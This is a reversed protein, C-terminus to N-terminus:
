SNVYGRRWAWLWTSTAVWTIILQSAVWRGGSTYGGILLCFFWMMAMYSTEESRDDACLRGFLRFPWGIVGFVLWLIFGLWRYVSSERHAFPRQESCSSFTQPTQGYVPPEVHRVASDFYRKVGFFSLQRNEYAFRHAANLDSMKPAEVLCSKMREEVFKLLEQEAKQPDARFQERFMGVEIPEAWQAYLNSRGTFPNEYNLGFPFIRLPREWGSLEQSLLAMKAIGSKLPGLQSRYRSRGEPFVSIWHGQAVTHALAQFVDQHVQKRQESSFRQGGFRQVPLGRVLRLLFALPQWGYRNQDYLFFTWQPASLQAIMLDQLGNWHNSVIIGGADLYKDPDLFWPSRHLNKINYQFYLTPYLVIWRVLMLVGGRLVEILSAKKLFSCHISVDASCKRQM